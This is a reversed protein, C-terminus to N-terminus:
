YVDKNLFVIRGAFLLEVICIIDEYKHQKLLQIIETKNPPNLEDIVGFIHVVNGEPGALDIYIEKVQNTAKHLRLRSLTDAANIQEM